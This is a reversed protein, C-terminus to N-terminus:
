QMKVLENTFLTKIDNLHVNGIDIANLIKPSNPYFKSYLEVLLPCYYFLFGLHYIQGM